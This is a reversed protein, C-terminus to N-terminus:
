LAALVKALKEPSHRIFSRQLADGKKRKAVGDALVDAGVFTRTGPFLGADFSVPEGEDAYKKLLTAPPTNTNYVVTDFVGEKGIMSELVRVYDAVSFDDTHGHRNMLNAIYVKRAKSKIFADCLGEVLFNPVLSTYLDGPGVTIVDAEKIAALAKPHAKAKPKLTMKKIGFKSILQYEGLADEGEIVKGNNLETILEATDLTVPIVKGKINLITGVIELAKDISGSIKELTSIFINGFNHGELGGNEYRHSFLERMLTGSEGLAILSQRLDGPPLVGLEDRLRGTSGGDDFMTVIASLEVPYRKLGLLVPFRGTGGGITVIKKMRGSYRHM